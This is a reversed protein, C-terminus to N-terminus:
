VHDSVLIIIIINAEIIIGGYILLMHPQNTLSIIEIEARSVCVSSLWVMESRM